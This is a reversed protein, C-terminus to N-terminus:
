SGAAAALRQLLWGPDDSAWRYGCGMRCVMGDAETRENVFEWAVDGCRPCARWLQKGTKDCYQCGAGSCDPCNHVIARGPPQTPPVPSQGRYMTYTSMATM